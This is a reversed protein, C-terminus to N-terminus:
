TAQLENMIIDKDTYILFCLTQASRTYLGDDWFSEWFPFPGAEGLRAKKAEVEM